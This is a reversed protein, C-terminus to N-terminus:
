QPTIEAEISQKEQKPVGIKEELALIRLKLEEIESLKVQQEPFERRFEDVYTSFVGLDRSFENNKAWKECIACTCNTVKIHHIYEEMCDIDNCKLNYKPLNPDVKSDCNRKVMQMYKHLRLGTKYQSASELELECKKCDKAHETRQPCARRNVTHIMKRWGGPIMNHKKIYDLHEKIVSESKKFQETTAARWDRCAQVLDIEETPEISNSQLFSKMWEIRQQGFQIELRPLGDLLYRITFTKNIEHSHVFEIFSVFASDRDFIMMMM